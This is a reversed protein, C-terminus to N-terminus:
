PVDHVVLGKDLFTLRKKMAATVYVEGRDDVLMAQAVGMQKAAERWGKVGSIFLPKSAADSLAGSLRGPPVVITVAEVGQVPWGTRPDIIHCYRKGDLMFYRQYDGSTGIAEGDRLDLTAIAGAHRPHQVGVRWPRGGHSGVAMINGGINVLAGKVKQARLYAAAVDLAYGKAYGGLDLQVAPNKSYAKGNEIVIDTMRPNERVLAAIEAPDPRVPKFEDNQFGWLKILRGIAPNFLGQSEVSLRTADRIIDATGADVPMPRAGQAFAENLTSLPSPKWAHLANHMRDFEALVHSALQQARSEQEGYITVDVLTGFVFSQQHYVPPEKACGSLTFLLVLGALVAALPSSHLTLPFGGIRPSAKSRV